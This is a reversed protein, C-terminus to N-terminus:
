QPPYDDDCLSLHTHQVLDTLRPSNVHCHCCFHHSFIPALRFSTVLELAKEEEEKLKRGGEM